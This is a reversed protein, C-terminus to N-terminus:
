QSCGNLANDIAALLEDAEVKDSHDRDLSKCAMPDASGVAISVALVLEDITVTGNTNCDGICGPTTTPVAGTMTPTPTPGPTQGSQNILVSASSVNNANTIENATAIGPSEDGDLDVAVIGYPCLDTEFAVAPVPFNGSGDGALVSVSGLLDGSGFSDATALDILKDGNFDAAVIGEPAEGVAFHTPQGFNGTGDNLLVYVCGAADGCSDSMDDAVAIDDHGDRNLDKVVISSPELGVELVTPTDFTGDGHGFLVFVTGTDYGAVALDVFDDNNLKGSAIGIPGGDVEIFKDCKDGSGGTCNGDTTCQVGNDLHCHGPASEFTGDGKGLFVTVTGPNDGYNTNAFDLNKDNNFFDLVIGDPMVGVDVTLPEQFTGNGNGLLVGIKGNFEGTVVLDPVEDNNVLGAAIASPALVNTFPGITNITPFRGSGDGLLVSITDDDYNAVALDQKDDHNFNGAVLSGATAGVNYDVHPAFSVPPLSSGAFAVGCVAVAIAFLLARRM